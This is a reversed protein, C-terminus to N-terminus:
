GSFFVVILAGLGVVFVLISIAWVLYMTNLSGGGQANPAQDRRPSQPTQYGQGGGLTRRLPTPTQTGTVAPRSPAADRYRKPIDSEWLGSPAAGFQAPAPANVPLGPRVIDPVVGTDADLPEFTNALKLTPVVVTGVLPDQPRSAFKLNRRSTLAAVNLLSWGVLSVQDIDESAGSLAAQVTEASPREEHYFSLMQGVLHVVAEVRQSHKAVPELAARFVQLREAVFERHQDAAIKGRGVPEGCVMEFLISGLSYIPTTLRDPELFRREPAMYTYSGLSMGQTDLSAEEAATLAPSFGHVKLSGDAMVEISDPKLDRHMVTTGDDSGLTRGVESALAAAVQSGVDVIARFPMDVGLAHVDRLTIGCNQQGIFAIRGNFYMVRDVGAVNPHDLRMMVDGAQQMKARYVPDASWREHIVTATLVERSDDGLRICQFRAAIPGEGTQQIFRYKETLGQEGLHKMALSVLVQSPQRCAERFMRMTLVGSLADRRMRGRLGDM